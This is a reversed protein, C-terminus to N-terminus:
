PTFTDMATGVSPAAPSMTIGDSSSPSMLCASASFDAFVILKAQKTLSELDKRGVRKQRWKVEVTWNDYKEQGTEQAIEGLADFEIQADSSLYSTVQTFVPIKVDDTQGM